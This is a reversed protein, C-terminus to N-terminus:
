GNIFVRMRMFCIRLNSFISLGALKKLSLYPLKEWGDYLTINLSQLLRPFSWFHLNLKEFRVKDRHLQGIFDLMEQDDSLVIQIDVRDFDIVNEIFTRFFHTAEGFHNRYIPVVLYPRFDTILPKCNTTTSNSFVLSCKRQRFTKVAQEYNMINTHFDSHLSIYNNKIYWIFFISLVLPWIPVTKRRDNSTEM